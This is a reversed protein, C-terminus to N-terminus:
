QRRRQRSITLGDMTKTVLRTRTFSKSTQTDGFNMNKRRADKQIPGFVGLVCFCMLFCTWVNLICTLVYLIFALEQFIVINMYKWINGFIELYEGCAKEM